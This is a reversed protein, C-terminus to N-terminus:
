NPNKEGPQCCEQQGHSCLTNAMTSLCDHCWDCVLGLRYHVMQLDNVVTGENQGEKECWPCHTIGNFHHLADLNHIGVLGMVKPSESLPVVPLFKLGKPLSWLAYNAQKLKDPGMWSAQIEHISTGLLNTSMAMQKFIESLNHTGDTTFNYSHKLLWMWLLEAWLCARWPTQPLTGDKPGLLSSPCVSTHSSCSSHATRGSPFGKMIFPHPPPTEELLIHYSTALTSKLELPSTYLAAQCTSLFDAQSRSEEQIVQAELDQITNGHERQLTEAQSARRAKIDRIASSCTAEAEWIIHGQTTKAGKVQLIWAEKEIGSTLLLVKGPCFKVTGGVGLHRLLFAKKGLSKDYWSISCCGKRRVTM